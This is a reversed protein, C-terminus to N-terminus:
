CCGGGGAVVVCAGLKGEGDAPWGLTYALPGPAPGADEDGAVLPCGAGWNGSRYLPEPLVMAAPTPSPSAPLTALLLKSPTRPLRPALKPGGPLAPLM